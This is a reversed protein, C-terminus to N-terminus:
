STAWPPERARTEDCHATQYKCGGCTAWRADLRRSVGPLVRGSVGLSRSVRSKVVAGATKKGPPMTLAGVLPRLGNTASSLPGSLDGFRVGRSPIPGGPRACSTASSGTLGARARKRATRAAGQPSPSNAATEDAYVLPRCTSIARDLPIQMDLSLQDERYEHNVGSMQM